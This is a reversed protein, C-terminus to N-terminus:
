KGLLINELEEHPHREDAQHIDVCNMLAGGDSYAPFLFGCEAEGPEYDGSM